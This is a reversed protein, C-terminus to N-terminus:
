PAIGYKLAMRRERNWLIEPLAAIVAALVLVWFLRTVGTETTVASANGAAQQVAGFMDKVAGVSGSGLGGKVIQWAGNMNTFIDGALGIYASINTLKWQWIPSELYSLLAQLVFGLIALLLFYGGISLWGSDDKLWLRIQLGYLFIVTNIWGFLWMPIALMQGFNLKPIRGSGSM